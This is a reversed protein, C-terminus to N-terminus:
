RTSAHCRATSRSVRMRRTPCTHRRASCIAQAGCRCRHPVHLPRSHHPRPEGHAATQSGDAATEGQPVFLREMPVAASVILRVRKDYFADVLTILRRVQWRAPSRHTPPAPPPHGGVGARAQNVENLTLQPVDEVLVTHFVSAIGLYDEAGLPRACLQEFTFRAVASNAGARPVQCPLM